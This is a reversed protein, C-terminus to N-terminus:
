WSTTFLGQDLGVSAGDYTELEDIEATRNGDVDMTFRLYRASASDFNVTGVPDEIANAVETYGADNDSYEITVSNVNSGTYKVQNFTKSSGFDLKLWAGGKSGSKWTSDPDGDNANEKPGSPLKESSATISAELSLNIGDTVPMNSEVVRRNALPDTDNPVYGESTVTYSTGDDNDDIISVTYTGEGFAEDTESWNEDQGGTTLAWRAKALGAEAIYYAQTDWLGAGSSKVEDSTMTLFALAVGSLGVMIVFVFLLVVGRKNMM